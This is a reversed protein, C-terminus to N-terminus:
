QVTSPIIKDAALDTAVQNFLTQKGPTVVDENLSTLTIQAAATLNGKGALVQPLLEKLGANYDASLLATWQIGDNQPADATSILYVSDGNLTSNINQSNLATAVDASVASPSIFVSSLWNKSLTAADATWTSSSSAAPESLTTPFAVIPSYFPNCKGCVFKGGNAFDDAYASGIPGDNTVLAAARWDQSILMALYGAMFAEDAPKAQISSVNNLGAPNSSGLLIFQTAAAASALSSLDAPASRFVVIKTGSTIDTSALTTLTRYQLSNASAFGTLTTVLSDNAVPQADVWILEAPAATPTPPIATAAPTSTPTPTKNLGACAALLAAFFVCFIVTLPHSFSRHAM